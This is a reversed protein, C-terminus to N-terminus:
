QIPQWTLGGDLSEVKEGTTPNTATKVAPKKFLKTYNDNGMSLSYFSDLDGGFVGTIANINATNFESTKSISPFVKVYDKSEPVSFQAGSM